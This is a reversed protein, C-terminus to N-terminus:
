FILRMEAIKVQKKCKKRQKEAYNNLEVEKSKKRGAM